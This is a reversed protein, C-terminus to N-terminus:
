QVKLRFFQLPVDPVTPAELEVRRTDTARYTDVPASSSDAGPGSARLRFAVPQWAGWQAAAELVYTRGQVATFALTPAPGDARRIELAFGDPPTVAYTGSLYVERFTMGSGPYQADPPWAGPTWLLGLRKATAKEWADPLGNEDADVGLTLDVRTRGGSAGLAALDGSMEIPLYTTRGLRVRLRFAANPRLATPLAPEESLGAEMPISLRYHVGPESWESLPAQRKVGSPGEFLVVASGTLPQGLEDRVTGFIEHPPLPPFAAAALPLLAVALLLWRPTNM